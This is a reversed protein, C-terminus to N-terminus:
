GHDIIKELAQALAAFEAVELTEARRDGSIGCGALAEQATEGGPAAGAVKGKLMVSNIFNILNNRITKRRSSFLARTLPQFLNPYSNREAEDLLDFRVGQSDIKPPPYFSAGKLVMLPSLKYASACLVSFSSYDSSGPKAMIRQAVERQVTVVMRKFFKKKEIFDALLVAAINYPLNGLLCDGGRVLQWTKLVDGEALLFESKDGFEERLVQCFAPDIEFATVKAGRELLGSTMAGLGPGVEWVTDGAELELADLLRSRANPNILFNQGFKKRMGLGRSDLFAKLGAPSDYNIRLPPM